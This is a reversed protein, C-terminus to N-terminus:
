TRKRYQKCPTSLAKQITWGSNLRYRIGGTGVKFGLHREWDCMTKTCGNFELLRNNTKNNQQEQMTVWRCNNPEYNGDNDIRDIQHRRSPPLGMDKIFNSVNMWRECVAIGKGGYNPFNETNPDLCRHMMSKWRKYLPHKSKGHFIIRGDPRRPLIPNRKMVSFGIGARSTFGACFSRCGHRPNSPSNKM